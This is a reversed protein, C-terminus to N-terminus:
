QVVVLAQPAAQKMRSRLWAMQLETEKICEKTVDNLNADRAGQAGQSVLTWCIECECTMLYLDHLDRILGLPGNRTGDFLVRHLREPEDDGAGNARYRDLFPRLLQQHHTVQSAFKECEVRVDPEDGHGAVIEGYARVLELLSRHLLNIYHRLNV